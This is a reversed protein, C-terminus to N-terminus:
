DDSDFEIYIDVGESVTVKKGVTGLINICKISLVYRTCKIDASRIDM